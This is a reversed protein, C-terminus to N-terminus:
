RRDRRPLRDQRFTESINDTKGFELGCDWMGKENLEMAFAISGAASISDMGLEDLEYNWRLIMEIDDNMINPGLLGLTELEPGKVIKDDVSVSRACRIVCTTCASNSVLHKEALEEGSVKEFGEFRGASFTRRRWSGM